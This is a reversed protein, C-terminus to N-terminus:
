KIENDKGGDMKAGCNWCFSVTVEPCHTEGCQCVSCNYYQNGDQDVEVIPIWKGKKRVEITECEVIMDAFANGAKTGYYKSNNLIHKLEEAEILRPM